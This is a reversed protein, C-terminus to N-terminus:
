SLPVGPSEPHARIESPFSLSSKVDGLDILATAVAERCNNGSCTSKLAVALVIGKNSFRQIPLEAVNLCSKIGNQNLTQKAYQALQTKSSKFKGAECLLVVECNIDCVAFNVGFRNIRSGFAELECLQSSTLTNRGTDSM